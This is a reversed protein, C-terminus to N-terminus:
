PSPEKRLSDLYTVVADIENPEFTFEPMDPHGSVIGEALAEALNEAPYRKMIERFPPAQPHTSTDSLGIAHCRSCNAGILEKGQVKLADDAALVAPTSIAAGFFM